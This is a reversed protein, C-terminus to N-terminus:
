SFSNTTSNELIRSQLKLTRDFNQGMKMNSKETNRIPKLILVWFQVEVNWLNPLKIGIKFQSVEIFKHKFEKLELKKAKYEPPCEM